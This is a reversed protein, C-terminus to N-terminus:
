TPGHRGTRVCGGCHMNAVGFSIHGMGDAGRMVFRDLSANERDASRWAPDEAASGASGEIATM